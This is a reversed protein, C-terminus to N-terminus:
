FALVRVDTFHTRRGEVTPSPCYYSGVARVLTAQILTKM